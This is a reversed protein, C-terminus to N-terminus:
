FVDELLIVDFLLIGVEVCVRKKNCVYILFDKCVGVLIVVLGFVNGVFEKM